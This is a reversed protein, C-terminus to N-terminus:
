YQSNEEKDPSEQIRKLKVSGEKLQNRLKAWGGKKDTSEQNGKSGGEEANM